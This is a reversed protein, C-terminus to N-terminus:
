RSNESSIACSRLRRTGITRRFRVYTNEHLLKYQETPLLFIASIKAYVRLILIVGRWGEMINEAFATPDFRRDAMNAPRGHERETRGYKWCYPRMKWVLISLLINYYYFIYMRLLSYTTASADCRRSKM